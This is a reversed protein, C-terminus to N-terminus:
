KPDKIIVDIQSMKWTLKGAETRQFRAVLEDNCPNSNNFAIIVLLGGAFVFGTM